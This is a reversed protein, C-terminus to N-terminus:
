KFIQNKDKIPYEKDIEVFIDKGDQTKVKTARRWKGEHFKMRILQTTFGNNAGVFVNLNVGRGKDLKIKSQSFWVQKPLLTGINIINKTLENITQEQQFFYNLDVIRVQVQNLPNDGEVMFVLYGEENDDSINGIEMKCYSNGGTLNNYIKLSAKVLKSSLETNEKRLDDITKSQVEIKGNLAETHSLLSKNQDRLTIIESNVIKVGDEIRTSKESSAKNHKWTGYAGILGGIISILAGLFIITMPRM